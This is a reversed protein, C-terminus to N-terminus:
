FRWRHLFAATMGAIGAALFFALLYWIAVQLGTLEVAAVPVIAVVVAVKTARRVQATMLRRQSRRALGALITWCLVGTGAYVLDPTIFAAWDFYIFGKLLSGLALGIMIPDNIQHGHPWFGILEGLMALLLGTFLGAWLCITPRNNSAFFGNQCSAQLRRPPTLAM